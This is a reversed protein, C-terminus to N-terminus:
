RSRTGEISARRNHRTPRSALVNSSQGFIILILFLPLLVHKLVLDTTDRWDARQPTM